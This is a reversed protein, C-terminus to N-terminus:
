VEELMELMQEVDCVYRNYCLCGGYYDYEKESEPLDEYPVLCPTTKLRSDKAEGYTWGEAIRSSAWVDHNNKALSELLELLEKDLVISKTDKPQPKYTM